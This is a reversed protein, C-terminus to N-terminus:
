PHVKKHPLPIIKASTHKILSGSLLIGTHLQQLDDVRSDWTLLRITQPEDFRFLCLLQSAESLKTMQSPLLNKLTDAMADDIGLRFMALAKDQNILLQALYLYSFNFDHIHKCIEKSDM